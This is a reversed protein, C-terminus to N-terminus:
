RIEQLGQGSQVFVGGAMVQVVGGATLTLPRGNALNIKGRNGCFARTSITIAGKQGTGDIIGGNDCDLGQITLDSEGAFTITGGHCVLAAVTSSADTVQLTGGSIKYDQSADFDAVTLRGGSMFIDTTTISSEFTVSPVQGARNGGIYVESISSSSVITVRGNEIRTWPGTGTTTALINFANAGKQATDVRLQNYTSELYCESGGGKYELATTPDVRLRDGSTGVDGSYGEQFYLNACTAAATATTDLVDGNGQGTFYCDDSGSPVGSPSWAGSTNWATPSSAIWVKDAM